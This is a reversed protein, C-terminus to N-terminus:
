QKEAKEMMESMRKKFTSKTEKTNDSKDFVDIEEKNVLYSIWGIWMFVWNIYPETIYDFLIYNSTNMEWEGMTEIVEINSVIDLM